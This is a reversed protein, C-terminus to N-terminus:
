LHAPHPARELSSPFFAISRCLEERERPNSTAEAVLLCEELLSISQGLDGAKFLDRALAILSRARPTPDPLARAKQVENSLIEAVKQSQGLQLLPEFLSWRDEPREFNSILPIARDLASLAEDSEGLKGLTSGLSSLIRFRASPGPIDPALAFVQHLIRVAEARRGAKLLQDAVTMLGGCRGNLGAALQVVERAQEFYGNEALAKVIDGGGWRTEKKTDTQRALRVAVEPRGVQAAVPAVAAAGIIKVASEFLGARAMSLGVWHLTNNRTSYDHIALAAHAARGFQGAKALALAFESEAEDPTAIEQLLHLAEKEKGAQVLGAAVGKLIETRQQERLNQSPRMRLGAEPYLLPPNEPPALWPDLSRWPMEKVGGGPIADAADEALHFAELAAEMQQSGLLANGAPVLALGRWYPNPITKVAALFRLHYTPVWKFSPDDSFRDLIRGLHLLFDSRQKLDSLQLCDSLTQDLALYWNLTVPSPSGEPLEPFLRLLKLCREKPDPDALLDGVLLDAVSGAQTDKGAKAWLLAVEWLQRLYQDRERTKAEKLGTEAWERAKMLVPFAKEREGSDIMQRALLTLSTLRVDDPPMRDLIDVAAQFERRVGLAGVVCSVRQGSGPPEAFETEIVQLGREVQGARVLSAAVQDLAYFRTADPVIQAIRLAEDFDGRKAAAEAIVGLCDSGWGWWESSEPALRAWRLARPYDGAEGLTRAVFAAINWLTPEPCDISWLSGGPLRIALTGPRVQFVEERSTLLRYLRRCSSIAKATDGLRAYAAPAGRYDEYPNFPDFAQLSEYALQPNGVEKAAGMGMEAKSRVFPARTLDAEGWAEVAQMALDLAHVAEKRAGVQGLARGLGVFGEYRRWPEGIASTSSILDPLLKLLIPKFRAKFEGRASVSAQGADNSQAQAVLAQGFLLWAAVLAGLAVTEGKRLANM